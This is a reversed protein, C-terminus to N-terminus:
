TDARRRSFTEHLEPLITALHAMEQGCHVLLDVAEARTQRALPRVARAALRAAPGAGLKAGLHPGGLWFRSRM